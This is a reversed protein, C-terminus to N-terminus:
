ELAQQIDAILDDYHEVGVSLRILNSTIGMSQKLEADVDAHTMTAPHEALSETSGLSVALHVLKLRNLFRFAEEEGGKIHFSLMAGGSECQRKFTEYQAGDAETLHGLYYVKEVKPHDRLYDAVHRANLAQQDM